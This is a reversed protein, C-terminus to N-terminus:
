NCELFQHTAKASSASDLTQSGFLRDSKEDEVHEGYPTLQQDVRRVLPAVLQQSFQRIRCAQLQRWPDNRARRGIGSLEVGLCNGVTVLPYHGFRQGAKIRRPRPAPSPEFDLM